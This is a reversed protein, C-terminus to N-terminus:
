ILVFSLTNISFIKILNKKQPKKKEKKKRNLGSVKKM